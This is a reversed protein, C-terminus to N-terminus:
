RLYGLLSPVLVPTVARDVLSSSSLGGIIDPVIAVIAVRGRTEPDASILMESSTLHVTM